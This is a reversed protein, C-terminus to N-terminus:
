KKVKMKAKGGCKNKNVLVGGKKFVPQEQAGAAQQLMELAMQLVAAVANPDGIQQLLMELLQQALQALQEEAGGQVPAGQEMPAAEPAAEAPMMQGGEQYKRAATDNFKKLIM